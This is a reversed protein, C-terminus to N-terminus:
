NPKVTLRKSQAKLQLKVFRLASRYHSAGNAEAFRGITWKSNTGAMPAGYLQGDTLEEILSLLKAHNLKLSLQVDHWNLVDHQAKLISNYARLQSWKFGEAPVQIKQGLQSEFHWNLFLEVWHARHAIITKITNGDEDALNALDCDIEKLAAALLAFEDQTVEILRSKSGAVM